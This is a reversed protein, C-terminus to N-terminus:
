RPTSIYQLFYNTGETQSDLQAADKSNDETSNEDLQFLFM